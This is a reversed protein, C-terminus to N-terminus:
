QEDDEPTSRNPDVLLSVITSLVGGLATALVAVDARQWLVAAVLGITLTVACVGLVRSAGIVAPKRRSM